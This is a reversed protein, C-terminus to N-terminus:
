RVEGGSSIRYPPLSHRVKSVKGLVKIYRQCLSLYETFMKTPIFAHIAVSLPKILVHFPSSHYVKIM